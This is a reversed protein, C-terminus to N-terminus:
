GVRGTRPIRFDPLKKISGLKATLVINGVHTPDLLNLKEHIIPKRSHCQFRGPGPPKLATLYCKNDSIIVTETNASQNDCDLVCWHMKGPENSPLGLRVNQAMKEGFDPVVDSINNGESVIEYFEDDDSGDGVLEDVSKDDPIISIDIPVSKPQHRLTTEKRAEEVKEEVRIDEDVIEKHLPSFVAELLNFAGQYYDNYGVNDSKTKWLGRKGHIDELSINCSSPEYKGGITFKSEDFVRFVPGVGSKNAIIPGVFLWKRNHFGYIVCWASIEWSKEGHKTYNADGMNFSLAQGVNALAGMKFGRTRPGFQSCVVINLRNPQWDSNIRYSRSIIRSWADLVEGYHPGIPVGVKNHRHLMEVSIRDDVSGTGIGMDCKVGLAIESRALNDGYTDRDAFGADDINDLIVGMNSSGVIYDLLLMSCSALKNTNDTLVDVKRLPGDGLLTEIGHSKEVPLHYSASTRLNEVSMIDYCSPWGIVFNYAYCLDDLAGLTTALSCLAEWWREPHLVLGPTINLMGDPNYTVVRLNDNELHINTYKSRGNTRGMIPYQAACLRLVTNTEVSLCERLVILDAGDRVGSTIYDKPVPLTSRNFRGIRIGSERIMYMHTIFQQYLVGKIMLHKIDNGISKKIMLGATTSKDVQGAAITPLLNTIERLYSGSKNGDALMDSRFNKQGSARAMQTYWNVHWARDGIYLSQETTAREYKTGTITIARIDNHINWRLTNTNTLQYLPPASVKLLVSHMSYVDANNGLVKDEVQLGTMEVGAKVLKKGSIFSDLKARHAGFKSVQDLYEVASKDM